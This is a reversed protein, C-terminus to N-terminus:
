LRRKLFTSFAKQAFKSEKGGPFWDEFWKGKANANNITQFDYEPHFYLRRAQPSTTVLSVLGLSSKSHDVFTESNQMDGEDFPIVQAIVVETKLAEGTMELCQQVNKDLQKIGGIDFKFSM